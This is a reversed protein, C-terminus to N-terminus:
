FVGSVRMSHVVDVWQYIRLRSNRELSARAEKQGEVFLGLEQTFVRWHSDGMFETSPGKWCRMCLNQRRHQWAFCNNTGQMVVIHSCRNPNRIHVISTRVYVYSDALDGAFDTGQFLGLKCESAKIELMVLLTQSRWYPSGPWDDM